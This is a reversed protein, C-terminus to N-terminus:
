ARRFVIDAVKPELPASVRDVEGKGDRGFTLPLNDPHIEAPRDETSFVDADVAALRGSMGRWRWGLGEGERVIAFRGYAPHTYDGVYQTLSLPVTRAKEREAERRAKEEREQALAKRRGEAFRALWDVPEHGRLRDFASYTLLETVGGPVRNTLIAIGLGHEPLIAMITSWGVWSGTHWQMRAGRYHGINWGFGYHLHGVHENPSQGAYVWPTTMERIAQSSLLRSGAVQGDGLWLNLWRALDRVSANLAGAPAARIPCLHAREVEAGRRVHPHAHDAAGALAEIAFGFDTFGLPHLLRDATFSEWRQGSIREAIHGAVVYGLNQYEFGTRIDRSLQLHRLSEVIQATSLDGPGHIWDHRPLGTHHCLLDRVTVRESAVADHLQFAPLYDRVPRGFDLKGEDFLLGLGAATFSKTLSCLLFQTDPTVVDDADIDKRGYGKLLLTEGAKVIAIAAGPVRWEAMAAEVLGDFDGLM